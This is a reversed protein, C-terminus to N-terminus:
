CIERISLWQGSTGYPFKEEKYSKVGVIVIEIMKDRISVQQGAERYPLKEIFGGSVSRNDPKGILCNRLLDEPYGVIVIEIMKDRISLWQGPM